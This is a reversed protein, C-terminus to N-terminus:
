GVKRASLLLHGISRKLPLARTQHRLRRLLDRRHARLQPLEIRLERDNGLAPALDVGHRRQPRGEVGADDLVM